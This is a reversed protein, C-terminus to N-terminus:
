SIEDGDLVSVIASATGAMAGISDTGNLTSDIPVVVTRKAPITLEEPNHTVDNATLGNRYLTVTVPSATINCLAIKSVLAQKGAGPSYLQTASTPLVRKDLTKLTEV